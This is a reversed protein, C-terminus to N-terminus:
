LFALYSDRNGNNLFMIHQLLTRLFMIIIFKEDFERQKTLNFTIHYPASDFISGRRDDTYVFGNNQYLKSACCVVVLLLKISFAREFINLYFAAAEGADGWVAESTYVVAAKRKRMEDNGFKM